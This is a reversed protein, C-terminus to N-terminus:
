LNLKEFIHWVFSDQFVTDIYDLNEEHEMPQGTAIVQFDRRDYSNHPNCLFWLNVENAQDYKIKLIRSKDPIFFTQIGSHLQLTEKWIVLSM